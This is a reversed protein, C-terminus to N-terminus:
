RFNELAERMYKAIKDQSFENKTFIDFAIVGQYLLMDSGNKVKLDSKKALKLFETEKYICDFAFKANKFLKELIEKPAPLNDDNLGASTTNVVLDFEFNDLENWNKANFNKDKFYELRSDSRNLVTINFDNQSLITSIAKSTGGAGLILIEKANFCDIAKLFGDADTNYGILKDNELVLTNIAGIEKAVGRIEDALEYANEKFPVTVNAGSLQLKKFVEKLKKGDELLIKIYRADINLNMFANNHMLPSKSHKIPNGFVAFLKLKFGKQYNKAIKDYLKLYL